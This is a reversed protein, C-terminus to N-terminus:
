YWSKSKVDKKWQELIGTYELRDKANWFRLDTIYIFVNKWGGFSYEVEGTDQWHKYLRLIDELAQKNSSSLYWRGGQKKAKEYNDSDPVYMEDLNVDDVDFEAMWELGDIKSVADHFNQFKGVTEIVLVKNPDGPADQIHNVAQQFRQLIRNNRESSDIPKPPPSGVGRGPPTAVLEPRPFILLPRTSDAM